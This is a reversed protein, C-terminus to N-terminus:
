YLLLIPYGREKKVKAILLMYPSPCNLDFYDKPDEFKLLLHLHDLVKGTNLGKNLIDKMEPRRSDVLISRNGLARPGYESRGQFWGIINGQSILEAVKNTNQKSYVIKYKDLYYKIKKPTYSNGLYANEFKTKKFKKIGLENLNYYGWIALGFPIGSDSCAPFIFINEM